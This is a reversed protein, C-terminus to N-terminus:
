PNLRAVAQRAAALFPEVSAAQAPALTTYRELNAVSERWRALKFSITAALHWYGPNTEDLSLAQLVADYAAQHEGRTHLIAALENHLFAEDPAAALGARVQEQAEDLRGQQQLVRAALLRPRPAAPKLTIAARYHELAEDGRGEARLLDGLMEHIAATAPDQALADRCAAAAEGALGAANLAAARFYHHSAAPWQACVDAAAAAAEAYKKEGILKRVGRAAAAEAPDASHLDDIIIHADVTEDDTGSPVLMFEARELLVIDPAEREIVDFLMRNGVFMVVLRRFSRRLYPVMGVGFSDICILASPLSPDGGDYVAMYLGYELQIRLQQAAPQGAEIRAVPQAARPPPELQVGLMGIMQRSAWDIEAPMIVRAKPLYRVVMDMLARYGIYAGWQTWHFDHPPYTPRRDRAHRLTAIPYAIYALERGSFERALRRYPSQQPDFAVGEPLQEPYVFAVEPAVVTLLPPLGMAALKAQRRRHAVAWRRLAAQSLTAPDRYWAFHDQRGDPLGTLFLWGDRGEIMPFRLDTGAVM